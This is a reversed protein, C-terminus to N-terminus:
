AFFSAPMAFSVVFFVLKYINSAPTSTLLPVLVHPTGACAITLTCALATTDASQYTKVSMFLQPLGRM